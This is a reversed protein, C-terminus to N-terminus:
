VLLFGYEAGSDVTPHSLIIHCDEGIAYTM